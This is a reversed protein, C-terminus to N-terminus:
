GPLEKRPYGVFLIWEHTLLILVWGIGNGGGTIAIIKGKVKM